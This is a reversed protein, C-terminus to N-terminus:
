RGPDLEVWSGIDSITLRAELAAVEARHEVMWMCAASGQGSLGVLRVPGPPQVFGFGPSAVVLAQM